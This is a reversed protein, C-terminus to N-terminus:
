RYDRVTGADSLPAGTLLGIAHRAALAAAEFVAFAPTQSVPDGCGAEFRIEDRAPPPNLKTEDMPDGNLPPIIDVRVVGGEDQLCVSLLRHDGAQAIAVLAPTVDGSASADIVLDHLSFLSMAESPSPVRAAVAEVVTSSYARSEIVKKVAVPKTLGVSGCDALHRILNGPKIIDPDYATIHGIGSRSLLDCLFSGIAGVGVVAVRAGALVDAHVGARLVLTAPAESASRVSALRYTDAKDKWIRLVVAAGVGGRSYRVILYRFRGEGVAKEILAADDAPIVTKLDDWTSPPLEPEGMDTVYGFARNKAVRKKKPIAGSGTVRTFQDHHRLQVFKNTLEDLDGYVVLPDTCHEFYRELDLDPFDGPWGAKSEEIWRTVLALFDDVDLWPLSQRDDAPYLCMAGSRERHWSRPFDKPPWAVPPMFPFGDPLVIEVRVADTDVGVTGTLTRADARFGKRELAEIFEFTQSERAEEWVTM